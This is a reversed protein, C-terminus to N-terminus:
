PTAGLPRSPPTIQHRRSALQELATPARHQDTQRPRGDAGVNRPPSRRGTCTCGRQGCRRRRGGSDGPEPGAPRPREVPAGVVVLVDRVGDDGLRHPLGVDVPHRLGKTVVAVGHHAGVPPDVVCLLDRPVAVDDALRVVPLVVPGPPGVVQLGLPHLEADIVVRQPGRLRGDRIRGDGDDPPGVDLHGVDDVRVVVEVAAPLQLPHVGGAVSGLLVDLAVHRVEALQARHEEADVEEGVVLGAEVLVVAGHADVVAAVGVQPRQLPDALRRPVHLEAEDQGVQEVVPRRFACNPSRIRISLSALKPVHNVKLPPRSVQCGSHDCHFLGNM